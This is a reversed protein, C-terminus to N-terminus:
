NLGQMAFRKLQMKKYLINTDRAYPPWDVIFAYNNNKWIFSHDVDFISEQVFYHFAISCM